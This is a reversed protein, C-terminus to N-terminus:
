FIGFKKRKPVVRSGWDYNYDMTYGQEEAAELIKDEMWKYDPEDFFGLNKSYEVLEVMQRPLGACLEAPPMDKKMTAVKHLQRARQWKGTEMGDFTKAEFQQWPLGGSMLYVLVYMLEEVDDRRTQEIGAHKHTSAYRLTGRLSEPGKREPLHNSDEDVYYGSMGFDILFVTNAHEKVGMLFNEPKIDRHLIGKSHIHELADIMQHALMLGTKVSVVRTDMMELLDELDPGLLEMVLINVTEGGLERKGLWFVDPIGQGGQLEILTEAEARLPSFKQGIEPETKVAVEEGTQLDTGLYITGYSGVGM